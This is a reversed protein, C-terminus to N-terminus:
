WVSPASGGEVEETVAQGLGGGLTEGPSCEPILKGSGEATVRAGRFRNDVM